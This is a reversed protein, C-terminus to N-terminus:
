LEVRHRKWPNLAHQLGDGFLQFGIVTILIALGPFITLHPAVWIFARGNSLMSGWESTPPQTGLGLFSLASAMLVISGMGLTGMVILPSLVEPLIHRALIRMDSSGLAKAAEVFTQQKVSLVSGRVVRAYRTWGVATLALMTNFLGPGLLGAIVMALILGPFATFIDTLRMLIEGLVRGFYGSVLGIITGICITLAVVMAAIKLSTRSGYIIRSMLCRGLQDTGLPYKWSPAELRHEINQELPNHPSLLPAALATFLLIGIIAMGVMATKQRYLQKWVEFLYPRFGASKVNSTAMM